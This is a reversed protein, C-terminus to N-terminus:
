ATTSLAKAALHYNYLAKLLNQLTETGKQNMRVIYNMPGYTVSLTNGNADTVTLTIQQDLNQPLIDAIEIYYMGDKAVPTYTNGNATFTCGTVDGTFYYRVAIRDRYLLSAGYFNVGSIKDRVTMEEATDPIDANAVGTIGDNALYETDYDFYMQAMAGYNLMEKVLAHYASHKEEALITDCYERVTYTTNSGIDRGNVVMVTIFENMQAASINATLRFYGDDTKELASVNYTVTDNGITLRVKTTSEISESVQLNFNVAYDDELVISWQHIKGVLKELDETVVDGCINCTKSQEGSLKFTPQVTVVWNSYKCTHYNVILNASILPNNGEAISIEDWQDQTGTYCINALRYCSLFAGYDIYIVSAPITIETLNACGDFAYNDITTVREPLAIKTLNYCNYFACPAIIKTSPHVDFSSIDQSTSTVLVLYPNDDNGLYKGNKFTNYQINNCGNFAGLGINSINSSMVLEKLNYCYNFAGEEITAISDPLIITTLSECWDFAWFGITTVPCGEITDPVVLKSDTGVYRTITVQNNNIVYELGNPLTEEAYVLVPLLVCLFVIFLLKTFIHKAKM